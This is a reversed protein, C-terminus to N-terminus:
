SEVCMCVCVYMLIWRMIGPTLQDNSMDALMHMCTYIAMCVYVCVCAYAGEGGWVYMVPKEVGRSSATFSPAVSHGRRAQFGQAPTIDKWVPSAEDANFAFM